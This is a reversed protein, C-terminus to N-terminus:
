SFCGVAVEGKRGWVSWSLFQKALSPHQQESQFLPHYCAVFRLLVEFHTMSQVTQQKWPQTKKAHGNQQATRRYKQSMTWSASEIRKVSVQFEQLGKEGLTEKPNWSSEQGAPTRSVESAEVQGGSTHARLRTSLQVHCPAEALLTRIISADDLFDNM